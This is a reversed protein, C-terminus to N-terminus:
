PQPFPEGAREAGSVRLVAGSHYDGAPSALYAVLWALAEPAAARGAAVAAVRIGFRAWEVSLTRTMNELGARAVAAPGSGPPPLVNVVNGGSAPIMAKTAVAHTMLWTAELGLRVTPGSGDPLGGGVPSDLEDGPDNVLADIRGHRGVVDEILAGVRDEDRVDCAIAECRGGACRAATEQLPEMQRGAVVVSAGCASLELAAARGRDSGGDAVVIARGSLLDDAFIRSTM